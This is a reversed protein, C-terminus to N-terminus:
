FAAPLTHPGPSLLVGFFYTRVAADPNGMMMDEVAPLHSEARALAPTLATSALLALAIRRSIKM